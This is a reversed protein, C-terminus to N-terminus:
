GGVLQFVFDLRQHETGAIMGLKNALDSPITPNAVWMASAGRGPGSIYDGRGLAFGMEGDANTVGVVGRDRWHSASAVKLKDAGPWYRIVKQQDMPSGDENLVQIINVAPGKREIIKVIRFVQGNPGPQARQIEAGYYSQVWAYDRTQGNVDIVQLPPIAAAAPKATPQPAPKSAAAIKPKPTPPVRTATPPVPTATPPVPTSTPPVPTSTWTATPLPTNTATPSPTWTPTNTPTATYTPTPTPSRVLAIAGGVANDVFRGGGVASWVVAPTSVGCIWMVLLLLLTLRVKMGRSLASLWGVFETIQGSLVVGASATASRSPRPSPKVLPATESDVIPRPAPEVEPAAEVEPEAMPAQKPEVMPMVAPAAELVPAPLVDQPAVYSEIGGGVAHAVWRGDARELRKGLVRSLAVSLHPYSTMLQDFNAKDLAWAKVDTVAQATSRRPNGTLLSMEGFFDGARVMDLVLFKKGVQAVLKVQGELLFYMEQGITGEAYVVENARFSVPRLRSSVDDLQAPTLVELLSIRRLEAHRSVVPAGASLRQSLAQNVAASLVPYRIALSDFDNKYLVWLTTSTIAQASVTRAKGTLLAMEGFFEGEKLRTLEQGEDAIRVQGSDVLYMADGADGPQYLAEGAEVHRLVLRNALEGVVEDPLASLFPVKKLQECAQQHDAKRLSLTLERTFATRITPYRHALDQFDTLALSWLQTEETTRAVETYPQELFVAEQGLAQGAGLRRFPDASDAETSVLRVEGSEVIYMAEPEAGAQYVLGGKHVTRLNLNEAIATLVEEGLSAFLPLPKLRHEVLYPEIYAIRKGIAVSLKFSLTPHAALLDSLQDRRLAWVDVGTAARASVSHPRDLLLDLEGLLASPGLNALVIEGRPTSEVLQVLGSRVLFLAKSPQGQEFLVSERAYQELNM